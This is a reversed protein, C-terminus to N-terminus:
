GERNARSPRTVASPRSGPDRALLDAMIDKALPAAARSGGGGHEVVAAVAYRPAEAPAYCVFLSHDRLLRSVAENPVGHSARAVQSTGTKGAVVIGPLAASGATGNPENVVGIMAKRVVDLSAKSFSLPVPEAGPQSLKRSSQRILKPALKMGGAVRATMVAMQLPSAIMFGQGIGAQVTEGGLWPRSRMKLKWAPDPMVGARVGALGIDHVVGFGLERGAAALKDIGTLRATEYFFVDCSETMAQHLQVTGHGGAKWCGFTQGGYLYSGTCTVRTEPTIVGAALGALATVIKFTSGPPYQGRVAKNVLPDGETAQLKQWNATSIGTAFMAPDYGPTSALALIEGSRVDMAVVASWDDLRMRNLAFRQTEADISLVLHQGAEGPVRELERVVRGRADVERRVLGPSGRLAQEMGLEVGSKGVRQGTLRLAPDKDTEVVDARGVYGVVHCTEPGHDYRRLWGAQTEVGPLQPTLVNVRSFEEWTLNDKILVPLLRSQKSTGELLRQRDEDDLVIIKDLKQVTGKLDDALDPILVAQLNELSEALVVGFRDRIGGRVVPVNQTNIRNAEALLRYRPSYTIQLEYLRAALMTMLGGQVGGIVLARRTFRGKIVQAEEGKRPPRPMVWRLLTLLMRRRKSRFPLLRPRIV